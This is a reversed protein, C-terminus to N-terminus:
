VYFVYQVPKSDKVKGCKAEPFFKVLRKHFGHVRDPTISADLVYRKGSKLVKVVADYDWKSRSRLPVIEVDEADVAKGAIKESLGFVVLVELGFILLLLM